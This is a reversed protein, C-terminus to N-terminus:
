RFTWHPEFNRVLADYNAQSQSLLGELEWVREQLSGAQRQIELLEQRAEEAERAHRRERRISPFTPQTGMSIKAEFNARLLFISKFIGDFEIGM